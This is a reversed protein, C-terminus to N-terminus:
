LAENPIVLVVEVATAAGNQRAPRFQWQALSNLVLTGQPARAPYVVALSEFRGARNVVGHLVMADADLLLPIMHPRVIEYPWPAELSAVNDQPVLGSSPALSYQLIWSTAKGIQLYVTYAVRGGWIQLLDPYEEALTSGVVVVGFHGNKALSIHDDSPENGAGDGPAAASASGNTATPDGQGPAADASNGAHNDEGAHLSDPSIGPTPTTPALNPATENAPPLTVTGEPMRLDSLSLAAASPATASAQSTTSPAMQQPEPEELAVPSTTSAILL